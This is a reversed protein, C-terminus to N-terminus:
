FTSPESAHYYTNDGAETEVFDANNSLFISSHAAPRAGDTLM